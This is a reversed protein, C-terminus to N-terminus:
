LAKYIGDDCEREGRFVIASFFFFIHVCKYRTSLITDGHEMLPLCLKNM